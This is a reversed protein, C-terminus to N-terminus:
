PKDPKHMMMDKFLSMRKDTMEYYFYSEENEERKAVTALRSLLTTSNICAKVEDINVTNQCWDLPKAQDNRKFRVQTFSKRDM